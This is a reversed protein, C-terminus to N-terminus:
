RRHIVKSNNDPVSSRSKAAPTITTQRINSKREMYDHRYRYSDYYPDDYKTKNKEKDTTGDDDFLVFCGTFVFAVLSLTLVIKKM